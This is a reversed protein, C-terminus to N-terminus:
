PEFNVIYEKLPVPLPLKNAHMGPQQAMANYIVVRCMQKLSRPSSYLEKILTCLGSRVPMLGAQSYLAQSMLARLCTFLPVHDMSLYFLKLIRAYRQAPDLLLEDRRCLALVYHHLVRSSARKLFLSAQSHCIQPEQSSGSGNQGGNGAAASLDINPNGGYQVLTLTLDYIYDLDTPSRATGAMEVLTQLVYQPRQGVRVNPEMGHQLLLTLLRRVFDFHLAKMEGERNIMMSEGATFVLVHMPTLNSRSTCNPNAGNMLLLRVCNLYCVKMHHSFSRLHEKNILPVLCVMLPVSGDRGTICPDGGAQLLMDLLEYRVDWDKVHRIVCALASNGPQNISRRAGHQLLYRILHMIDWKNWQPQRDIGCFMEELAYRVILAHLPTNGLSDPANIVERAGHELLLQIAVLTDAASRKGMLILVHLATMQQTPTQVTTEAGHAVLLEVFHVDHQVAQHIPYYEDYCQNIEDSREAVLYRVCNWAGKECAIHLLPRKQQWPLLWHNEGQQILLELIDVQDGDIAYYIASQLKDHSRDGQQDDRVCHKGRQECNLHHPGPWCMRAEVEPRAGHKLLLEVCEEHGRLCAIHLPLSCVGGGRNVDINKQLLNYGEENHVMLINEHKQIQSLIGDLRQVTVKPNASLADFVTRIHKRTSESVGRHNGTSLLASGSQFFHSLAGGMIFDPILANPISTLVNEKLLVGKNVLNKSKRLMAKFPSSNKKFNCAQLTYCECVQNLMQSSQEKHEPVEFNRCCVFAAHKKTGM